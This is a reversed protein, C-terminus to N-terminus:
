LVPPWRSGVRLSCSRAPALVVTGAAPAFLRTAAPANPQAEAASERM